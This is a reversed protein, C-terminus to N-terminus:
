CVIKQQSLLITGYQPLPFNFIDLCKDFFFTLIEILIPVKLYLNEEASQNVSIPILGFFLLNNNEYPM